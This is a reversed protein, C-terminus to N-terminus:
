DGGIWGYGPSYAIHHDGFPSWRAIMTWNGPNEGFEKVALVEQIGAFSEAFGIMAVLALSFRILAKRWPLGLVGLVTLPLVSFSALLVLGLIGRLSFGFFQTRWYALWYMGWIISAILFATQIDPKPIKM